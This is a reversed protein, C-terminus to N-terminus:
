NDLIMNVQNFEEIDSNNLNDPIIMYDPNFDSDDLNLDDDSLAISHEDELDREIISLDDNENPNNTNNRQTNGNTLDVTSAVNGTDDEIFEDGTMYLNHTEDDDDSRYIESVTEDDDLFSPDTMEVYEPSESNLSTSRPITSIDSLNLRSRLRLNACEYGCLTLFILWFSKMAIKSPYM